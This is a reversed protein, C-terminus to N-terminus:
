GALSIRVKTGELAPKGSLLDYLNRMITNPNVGHGKAYRGSSWHGQGFPIAVAGPMMGPTVKARAKISGVSSEIWIMAGDQIGHVTATKPHLEVWSDWFHQVSAGFMEQMMPLNASMGDRNVMLGFTLLYLPRDSEYPVPEHHPLFASDGRASINLRNLVLEPSYAAEKIGVKKILGDVTAKLQQSYFEYKRSPTPFIGRATTRKRKPNWWGGQELLLNWFEEFSAYRGIQWGRQQLFEMWLRQVNEAIVAGEGSEYVGKMIHKIQGAYDDIPFSTAVSGGVRRALDILVDATHRTDFLPETVPKQIGVHVFNVSPVNSVEDWRELFTHNPLVYHAYESSETIFSDFSVVLPIKALAESFDHQNLSHFLPNGGYLFLVSLPYPKGSLVNSVFSQVSFESLPFTGDGSQAIPTERNGKQAIADQKVAPLHTYPPDDVFYIGGERDYNGLLANLSQVAMQSFVGNTNDVTRQIGLVRAPRSNGLERALELVTGSPVGTVDSVVDPYYNGLVMNKFGTHKKGGGDIWDDFGFTHNRVFDADFLEERILVYAIGLALAGYSGPRAPVWRDANAATLSLRPEIQIYRTGRERHHSYLKTYYVPSPGEELFNTGFSLILRANLFDYAPPQKHGHVLVNGTENNSTSSFRFYNPSGYAEMFREIHRRMLGREDHGLFAVQHSKGEARLQQLTEAIKGQADNWSVAEWKGSAPKGVRRIPATLRDPHYLVHLANLGLPCMGGQNVPHLPNGKIYAPIGDVLRVRIGCGGPCLGCTTNAWTEVGPGNRAAQVLKDPLKIVEDLGCGAFFVTGSAGGVLKIFDRRKIEM